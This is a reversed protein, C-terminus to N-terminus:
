GEDLCLSISLLGTVEENFRFCLNCKDNSNSTNVLKRGLLLLDHLEKTKTLEVVTEKNFKVTSGPVHDAVNFWKDSVSIGGTM